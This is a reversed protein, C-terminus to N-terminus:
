SHLRRQAHGGVGVKAQGMDLTHYWLCVIMPMQSKIVVYQRAYTIAAFYDAQEAFRDAIAKIASLRGEINKERRNKKYDSASKLIAAIQQRYLEPDIPTKRKSASETPLPTQLLWALDPQQQLMHKLIAILEAKDRQELHTDINEM